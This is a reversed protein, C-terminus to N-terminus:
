AEALLNRSELRVAFGRRLLELVLVEHGARRLVHYLLLPVLENLELLLRVRKLLLQVM